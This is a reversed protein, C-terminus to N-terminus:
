KFNYNKIILFLFYLWNLFIIKNLKNNNLYFIFYNKKNVNFLYKIILFIKFKKNFINNINFFNYKIQNECDGLNVIKLIIM